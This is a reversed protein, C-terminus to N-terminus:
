LENDKQLYGIAKKLIGPNINKIDENFDLNNRMIKIYNEIDDEKTFLVGTPQTEDFETEVLDDINIDFVRREITLKNFDGTIDVTVTNNESYSYLTCIHGKGRIKYFKNPPYKKAMEQIILPGTKLWEEFSKMDFDKITKM